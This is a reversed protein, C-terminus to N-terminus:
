PTGAASSSSRTPSSVDLKSTLRPRTSQGLRELLKQAQGSRRNDGRQAFYDRAQTALQVARSRDAPAGRSVLAEAHWLAADARTRPDKKALAQAREFAASAGEWEGVGARAQGAVVWTEALVSSEPGELQEQRRLVAEVLPRGRRFDRHQIFLTAKALHFRQVLGPDSAALRVGDRVAGEMLRLAEPYRGRREKYLSWELRMLAANLADSGGSRKSLEQGRAFLRDVEEEPLDLQSSAFAALGLASVLNSEMGLADLREVAQLARERGRRNDGRVSECMAATALLQPLEPHEAGLAQTMQPLLADLQAVAEDLLGLACRLNAMRAQVRMAAVNLPGARRVILARLEMAIYLHGRDTGADHLTVVHPHRVRALAQAERLLRERREDDTAGPVLKLAVERGLRPDTARFVQGMAGEGVRAELRYRGVSAGPVAAFTRSLRTAEGVCALCALCEALHLRAAQAREAPLVAAILDAVTSEDLHM